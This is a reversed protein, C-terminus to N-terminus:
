LGAVEEMKHLLRIFGSDDIGDGFRKDLCHIVFEDGQLDVTITGPTLTISNALVVRATKSKLGSSFKILASHPQSPSLICGITALSAKIIEIILNFIYLIVTPIERVIIMDKKFSFGMFRCCFFYVAGCVLIGCVLTDSHLNGNFILWMLYFLVFM